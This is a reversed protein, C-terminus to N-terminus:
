RTEGEDPQDPQGAYLSRRLLLLTMAPASILYATFGATLRTDLDTGLPCLVILALAALPAGLAVTLRLATHRHTDRPTTQWSVPGGNGVPGHLDSV